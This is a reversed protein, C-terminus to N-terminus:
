FTFLFGGKLGFLTPSPDSFLTSLQVEAFPTITANTGLETGLLFNAGVDTSSERFVGGLDDDASSRFIGLGAGAYFTLPQDGTVFPYLLNGSLAWFTQDEGILYYDFTPNITVPLRVTSIRADLGVFPDEIDGIDMGVRPGIEFVTQNQAEAPLAFALFLALVGVFFKQMM